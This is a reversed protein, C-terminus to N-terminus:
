LVVLRLTCGNPLPTAGPDLVSKVVPDSADIEDIGGKSVLVTPATLRARVHAKLSEPTGLLSISAEHEKSLAPAGDVPKRRRTLRLFSSWDCYVQTDLEPYAFVGHGTLTICTPQVVFKVWKTAGLDSTQIRTVRVPIFEAGEVPPIFTTWVAYDSTAGIIIEDVLDPGLYLPNLKPRPPM